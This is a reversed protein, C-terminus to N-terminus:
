GIWLTAPQDMLRRIPQVIVEANHRLLGCRIEHVSGDTGEVIIRVKTAIQQTQTM